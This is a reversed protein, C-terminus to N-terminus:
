PWRSPSGERVVRRWKRDLLFNWHQPHTLIFAELHAAWRRVVEEPTTPAIPEEVTMLVRSGEQWVYGPLLPKRAKVALRAYWVPLHLTTGLLRVEVGEEPRVVRDPTVALFEERIRWLFERTFAMASLEHVPLYPVELVEVLRGEVSRQFAKNSAKWVMRSPFARHCLSLGLFASPTHPMAIVAGGHEAKIRTLREQAEPTIQSRELVETLRGRYALYCNALTHTLNFAFNHWIHQPPPLAPNRRGLAELMPPVPNFPLLYAADVLHGLGRLLAVALGIPLRDVVPLGLAGLRLILAKQHHGRLRFREQPAEVATPASMVPIM